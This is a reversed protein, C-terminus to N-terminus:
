VWDLARKKYVWVYGILLIGLFACMSVLADAASHNALRARYHLAWSFLFITAVNAIAFLSALVYFRASSRSDARAETSSSGYGDPSFETTDGPSAPLIWKFVLLAGVPWLLVLLVFVFVPIYAVPM